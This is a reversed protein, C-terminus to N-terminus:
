VESTQFHNNKKDFTINLNQNNLGGPCSLSIASSQAMGAIIEHRHHIKMKLRMELIEAKANRLETEMIGRYRENQEIKHVLPARATIIVGKFILM